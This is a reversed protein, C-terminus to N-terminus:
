NTKLEQAAKKSDYCGLKKGKKSLVCWKGDLKRVVAYKNLCTNLMGELVQPPAKSDILEKLRNKASIIEFRIDSAAFRGVGDLIKISNYVNDEAEQLHNIARDIFFMVRHPDDPDDSYIADKIIDHQKERCSLAELFADVGNAIKVAGIKDLQDALDAIKEFLNKM